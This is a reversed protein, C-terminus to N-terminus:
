KGKKKFIGCLGEMLSWTDASIKGEKRVWKKSNKEEATFLRQSQITKLKAHYEPLCGM